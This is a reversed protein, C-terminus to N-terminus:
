RLGTIRGNNRAARVAAEPVCENGEEWCHTVAGAACLHGGMLGRLGDMGDKHHRRLGEM